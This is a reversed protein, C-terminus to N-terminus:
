ICQYIVVVSYTSTINKQEKRDVLFYFKRHSFDNLFMREDSRECNLGTRLDLQKLSCSGNLNDVYRRKPVSPLRLVEGSVCRRAALAPIHAHFLLFLIVHLIGWCCCFKLALELRFESTLGWGTRRVKPLDASFSGAESGLLAFALRLFSVRQDTLMYFLERVIPSQHPFSVPLFVSMTYSHLELFPVTLFLLNPQTRPLVFCFSGCSM